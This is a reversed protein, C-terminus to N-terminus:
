GAQRYERCEPYGSPVQFCRFQLQRGRDSITKRLPLPNNWYLILLIFFHNLRQQCNIINWRVIGTGNHIIQIPGPNLGDHEGLSLLRFLVRFRRYVRNPMSHNHSVVAIGMLM